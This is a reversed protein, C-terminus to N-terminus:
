PRKQANLVSDIDLVPMQGLVEVIGGHLIASYEELCGARRHIFEMSSLLHQILQPSLRNWAEQLARKLETVSSPPHSLFASQRGLMDWVHKM